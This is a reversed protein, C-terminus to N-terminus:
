EEATDAPHLGLQARLVAIREKLQAHEKNLSDYKSEFERRLDEIKDRVLEHRSASRDDLYQRDSEHKKGHETTWDKHDSGRFRDGDDILLTSGGSSLAAVVLVAAIHHPLRVEGGRQYGAEGAGNPM